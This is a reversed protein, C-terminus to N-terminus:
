DMVGGETLPKAREQLIKLWGQEGCKHYDPAHKRREALVEDSVELQLLRKAADITIMDGDEILGIAGGTAAEPTIDTVMLAANCLGSANGDTIMAVDGSLGKGDVAFLSYRPGGMGPTGTIGLGRIVIVDGKVITGANLADIVQQANAFVKAPGRFYGTKITDDIQLKMLGADALNGKLIIMGPRTNLPRDMPRIIEDNKVVADKLNEAVTKGNANVANGDMVTELQKMVALTGGAADFDDIFIDGNPRIGALLPIDDAYKDFLGFVDVDSQAAHAIAQLHKMANLSGSVALLTKVCNAFAEPTLIDRPKLDEDVMEVIRHSAAKVADWMAPSNALVPTTGPLCFGLAECAIHMTNATGIGQCVGPGKIAARIMEEMEEDTVQGVSKRGTQIFLDEIDFHEGKYTGCPQYGCAIVITPVNIRAAAMLQGPLTKDCSALCIMGDLGMGEVASEVDYSILDRSGLIFGNEHGTFLFDVPAATRIEFPLGGAAEVEKAAVRAIEDLHSFCVAYNSSSNVIAIKPKVLDEETKGLALWMARRVPINLKNSRYEKM